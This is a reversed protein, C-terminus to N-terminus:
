APSTGANNVAYIHYVYISGASLESHPHVYPGSGAATKISLGGSSLLQAFAPCCIVLFLLTRM